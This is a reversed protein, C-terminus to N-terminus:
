RRACFTRVSILRSKSVHKAAADIRDQRRGVGRAAKAMPSFPRSSGTSIYRLSMKVTVTFMAPSGPMETGPPSSACPRGSPRCIIPRGNSSSVNNASPATMSCAAPNNLGSRSTTFSVCTPNVPNM